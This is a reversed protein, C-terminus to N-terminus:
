PGFYISLPELIIAKSQNISSESDSEDLGHHKLNKQSLDRQKSNAVEPFLLRHVIVEIGSILKEEDVM